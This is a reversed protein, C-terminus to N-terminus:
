FKSKWPIRALVKQWMRRRYEASEVRRLIFYENIPRDDQLATVGNGEAILTDVSVEQNLIGAFQREADKAPGWELLDSIASGPLHSALTAASFTPLPRQSALFHYGWGEISHFVRVYLFSERLAKAVSAIILPDDSGMPFWQQLIGDPALHLKAISYFEKSYLLSSGAAEVPPPPDIVIVDYRQDSRQMYFRGDDVM